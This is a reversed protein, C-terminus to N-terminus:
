LININHQWSLLTPFSYDSYLPLLLHEFIPYLSKSLLWSKPQMIPSLNIFLRVLYPLLVLFHHPNRCLSIQAPLRSSMCPQTRSAPSSPHQPWQPQVIPTDIVTRIARHPFAPLLSLILDPLPLSLCFLLLPSFALFFPHLPNREM